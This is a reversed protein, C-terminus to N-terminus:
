WLERKEVARIPFRALFSILLGVPLPHRVRFVQDRRSINHGAFMVELVFTNFVYTPCLGCALHMAVGSEICLDPIVEQLLLGSGLVQSLPAAGSM